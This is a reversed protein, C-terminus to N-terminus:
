CSGILHLQQDRELESHVGLQVTRNINQCRLNVLRKHCVKIGIGRGESVSSGLGGIRSSGALGAPLHPKSLIAVPTPTM